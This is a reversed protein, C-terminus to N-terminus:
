RGKERFLRRERDTMDRATVVFDRGDAAETVVVLLYRGESSTGLVLTTGERGATSLRPRGYLAQEVESPQVDHRAIHAESDETWLVEGFVARVYWTRLM